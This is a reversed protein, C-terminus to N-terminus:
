DITIECLGRSLVWPEKFLPPWYGVLWIAGFAFALGIGVLSPNAFWSVFFGVMQEVM